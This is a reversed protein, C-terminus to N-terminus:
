KAKWECIYGVCNSDRAFDNWVGDMVMLCHERGKYNNPEKKRWATFTMPTGDVWKWIGETAADTAGLWLKGISLGKIFEWTAADPVVALQGKAASCKEKAREWPVDELYVHYWKGNFWKADTPVGVPPKEPQSEASAVAALTLLALCTQIYHKM